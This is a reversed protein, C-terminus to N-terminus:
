GFNIHKPPPQVENKGKGVLLTMERHEVDIWAQSTAKSLREICSVQQDEEMGLIVFDIPFNLKDIGVM